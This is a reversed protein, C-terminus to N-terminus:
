SCTHNLHMNCGLQLSRVRHTCGGTSAVHTGHGDCDEASGDDDVFDPGLTVRSGGSGYWPQFEQHAARIGSDLIYITVGKGPCCRGHLEV